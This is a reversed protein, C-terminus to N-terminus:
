ISYFLIILFGILSKVVFESEYVPSKSCRLDNHFKSSVYYGFKCGLCKDNKIMVCGKYDAFELICTHEMGNGEDALNMIYKNRCKLCIEKGDKIQCTSCGMISCERKVDCLNDETMIFRECERCTNNDLPDICGEMEHKICFNEESMFYGKRCEVCKKTITDYSGCNDIIDNPPQCILSSTQVYSVACLRCGIDEGNPGCVLCHPDAGDKCHNSRSLLNGQSHIPYFILSLLFITFIMSHTNFKNHKKQM